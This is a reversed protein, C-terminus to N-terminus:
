DSGNDGSIVPEIVNIQIFFTELDIKINNCVYSGTRVFFYKGPKLWKPIVRREDTIFEGTSTYGEESPYLYYFTRHHRGLEDDPEKTLISYNVKGVCEVIRKTFSRIFIQQNPHVDFILSGDGNHIYPQSVTSIPPVLKHKYYVMFNDFLVNGFIIVIGLLFCCFIIFFAHTNRKFFQV